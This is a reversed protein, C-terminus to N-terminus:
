AAPSSHYAEVLWRDDRRSLTWTALEWRDAPPEAEGAFVTASRTLVIVAHDGPSGAPGLTRIGRVQHIRQSHKLPGAFADGMRARIDARGSLHVGPLVVTADEAYGDAFANADGGAWAAMTAEFAALLEPEDPHSALVDDATETETETKAHPDDSM